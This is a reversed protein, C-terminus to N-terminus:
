INSNKKTIISYYKILEKIGEDISISAKFGKKEIKDNSVIYNRKDPDKGFESTFINLDKIYIKIKECLEMKTLNANSLGLNYIESKLSDFNNISFSYANAIDRVHIFNRKFHSEFLVISKDNYAKYVFDNVLLDTRPRPSIGFVTAMRYCISNVRSMVMDEAEKKLTGYLSIPNLPTKEDCHIEGTTAGYGSNTTPYIMLQQDSICDIINKISDRNVTKAEDQSLNCAPAGVVASLPIICDFNKLFDRDLSRVDKKYVRFNPNNILHNLSNENFKFVDVVVVNHNQQLLMESLVSGIYGAGGPILINM